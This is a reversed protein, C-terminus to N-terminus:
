AIKNKHKSSRKLFTFHCGPTVCHRLSLTTLHKRNMVFPERLEENGNAVAYVFHM